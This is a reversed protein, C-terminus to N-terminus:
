QQPRHGVDAIAFLCGAGAGAGAPQSVPARRRARRRGRFTGTRFAHGRGGQHGARNEGACGASICSPAALPATSSAEHHTWHEHRGAGRRAAAALAAAAVASGAVTAAAPVAAARGPAAAAAWSGDETTETTD